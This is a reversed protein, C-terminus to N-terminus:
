INIEINLLILKSHNPKPLIRMVFTNVYGRICFFRVSLGYGRGHTENSASPALDNDVLSRNVSDVAEAAM